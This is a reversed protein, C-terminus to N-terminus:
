RWLNGPLSKDQTITKFWKVPYRWWRGYRLPVGGGGSLYVDGLSTWAAQRKDYYDLRM